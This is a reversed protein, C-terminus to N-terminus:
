RWNFNRLLIFRNSILNIYKWTQGTYILFFLKHGQSSFNHWSECIVLFFPTFLWAALLLDMERGSRLPACLLRIQNYFQAWACFKKKKLQVRFSFHNKRKVRKYITRGPPWLLFCSSSCLLSLNFICWCCYFLHM